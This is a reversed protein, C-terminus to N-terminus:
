IFLALTCNSVNSSCLKWENGLFLGDISLAYSYYYILFRNLILYVVWLMKIYNRRNHIGAMESCVNILDTQSVISISQYAHM